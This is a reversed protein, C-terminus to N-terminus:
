EPGPEPVKGEVERKVLAEPEIGETKAKRAILREEILSDLGQAKISHVKEAHEAEARNVQAKVHEMLEGTTITEEGLKAVPKSSDDAATGGSSPSGGAKSGEQKCGLPSGLAAGVLLVLLGKKLMRATQCPFSPSPSCFASAGRSSGQCEAERSDM